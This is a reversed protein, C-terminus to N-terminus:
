YYYEKLFQIGSFQSTYIHIDLLLTPKAMESSLFKFKYLVRDELLTLMVPKFRVLLMRIIIMMKLRLYHFIKIVMHLTPLKNKIKNLKTFYLVLKNEM